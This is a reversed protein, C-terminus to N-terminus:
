VRGVCGLFSSPIRAAVVSKPEYDIEAISGTANILDILDSNMYRSTAKIYYGLAMRLSVLTNFIRDIDPRTTKSLDQHLARGFVVREFSSPAV